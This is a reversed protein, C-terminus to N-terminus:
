EEIEVALVKKAVDFSFGARALAAVEKTDRKAKLLPDDSSQPHAKRYPGFARKKAFARAAAEEAQAPSLDPDEPHLADEILDKDIGKQALKQTIRRTSGGSRRLSHVKMEAFAKDNIVGTRKHTEVIRDIAARLASQTSADAALAEDRLAARRIKNELVRRLGAESAAYRSLYYLAGAALSEPTPRKYRRPPKM